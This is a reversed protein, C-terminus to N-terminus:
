NAHGNNIYVNGKLTTGPTVNVWISRIAETDDYDLTYDLEYGENLTTITSYDQGENRWIGIIDKKQVTNEIKIADENLYTALVSTHFKAETDNKIIVQTDYGARLYVDRLSKADVVSVVIFCISFLAMIGLIRKMVVVEKGQM